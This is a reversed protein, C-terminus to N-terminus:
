GLDAPPRLADRVRPWSRALAPTVPQSPPAPPTYFGGAPATILEVLVPGQLQLLGDLAADFAEVDDFREAHRYGAERAMGAFTLKGEAPLPQAGSTEYIGNHFVVHLFRSPAANAITALSGLQMLLSGDGDLVWVPLDPRALAVGLGLTSAGGMFGVCVLNRDSPSRAHWPGLATMTAVTLQDTRRRALVDLASDRSMRRGSGSDPM